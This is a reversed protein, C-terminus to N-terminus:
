SASHAYGNVASFASLFERAQLHTYGARAPKNAPNREDDPPKKVPVGKSDTQQPGGQVAEQPMGGGPGDVPVQLKGDIFQAKNLPLWPADGWDVAPLGQRERWENLTLGGRELAQMDRDWVASASEQLAPVQSFDFECHDPYGRSGKDRKFLPLYQERIEEARFKADPALARSWEVRELAATDGPSAQELDGHLAPQLGYARCVQRFTMNMGAIFEADKASMSMQQFKAENRLVAWRHANQPGVFKSKLHRELDGAQAPTFVKGDPPTIIGALNMGQEFMKGNATMMSKATDAALRAAALPSLASFQDIPNPYRFWIIEDNNFHIPSMGQSPWYWYGDLYDSAHPVPRVNSPKLWWIEGLPSKSSPPQLAWYTEGWLGMALEDMRALRASTWFKNVYRFLEIPRSDDVEKKKTGRGVYFKLDLGALLRARASVVSYIDNSSAIYEEYVEPSFRSDDHGWSSEWPLVEAAGVPWQREPRMRALVEDVFSVV